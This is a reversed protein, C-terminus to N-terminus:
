AGVEQQYVTFGVVQGTTEDVAAAIRPLGLSSLIGNMIGIASVTCVGNVTVGFAEAKTNFADNCEVGQLLQQMVSSDLKVMDNLLAVAKEIGAKAAESGAPTKTKPKKM